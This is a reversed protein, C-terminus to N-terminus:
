SNNIQLFNLIRELDLKRIGSCNVRQRGLPFSDTRGLSILMNEPKALQEIWYVGIDQPVVIELHNPEALRNVESGLIRLARVIVEIEILNQLHLTRKDFSRTIETLLRRKNLKIKIFFRTKELCAPIRPNKVLLMQQPVIECTELRKKSFVFRWPPNILYTGINDHAERRLQLLSNEEEPEAKKILDRLKENVQVDNLQVGKLAEYRQKFREIAHPTIVIDDIKV